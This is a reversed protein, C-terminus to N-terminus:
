GSRGQAGDAVRRLLDAVLPVDEPALLDLVRRRACALHQPAAEQQRRLGEATLVADMGRADAGHREKIVLGRAALDDVVRTIRSASLAISTALETMRLRRGPAESLMLLVGYNTMSLGTSKVMDDDLARPMAHAIRGMSRWLLDEDPSLPTPDSVPLMM